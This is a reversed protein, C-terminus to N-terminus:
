PMEQDALVYSRKFYADSTFYPEGAIGILLWDGPEGHSAGELTVIDLAAQLQAAEIVTSSKKRYKDGELHEYIQSFIAQECIAIAQSGESTPGSLIKWDGPEGHFTGQTAFPNPVDAPETLQVASIVKPIARYRRFPLDPLHERKTIAAM